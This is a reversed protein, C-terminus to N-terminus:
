LLWINKPKKHIHIFHTYSQIESKESMNNLKHLLALYRHM